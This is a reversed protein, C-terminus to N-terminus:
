DERLELVRTVREKQILHHHRGDRLTFFRGPANLLDVIRQQARPMDLRVAGDFCHGQAEVVVHVTPQEGEDADDPNSEAAVSLAVVEHKNLVTRSHGDDPTFPFFQPGLNAWEIPRMPGTHWPSETPLFIHGRLVRGDAARIQTAIATTPVQLERM